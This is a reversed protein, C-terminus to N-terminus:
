ASDFLRAASSNLVNGPRFYGLATNASSHGSLGMAEAFPINQLGAETLFGARLSHASFGEAELGALKAREIVIRRVAAPNLADGVVNGRRIRRFIAGEKVGSASLWAELARAADGAVPKATGPNEQASQNTKSQGLVYIYQDPGIRRLRDLTAHVVESRRRGGSAVAFLLLARDRLGRLSADCTALIRQLPAQTLAPKKRSRAGRSAYARRTSSLVRRVIPEDMPNALSRARHIQSLVALRHTISNLSLPGIHAKYRMQVLAQDIEPPLEYRLGDENQREAHDVIFQIVARSSVPLELAQQFRLAFWAGWYRLATRYSRATNPSEGEKVLEQAAALLAEDWDAKQALPLTTWDGKPSPSKQTIPTYKM